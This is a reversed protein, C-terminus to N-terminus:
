TLAKGLCVREGGGFPLLAAPDPSLWAKGLPVGPQRIAEPM